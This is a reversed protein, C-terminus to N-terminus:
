HMNKLYKILGKCGETIDEYTKEFNGTYWPDSIDRSSDAFELLRHVKNDKDSGIIRLLNRINNKDMVIIYDYNKYDTKEFHVAKRRIYPIGKEDLIKKTGYHIDNGIEEYSTASSSVCINNLGEREAMYRFVFEAMPSRCINTHRYM